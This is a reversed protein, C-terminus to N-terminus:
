DGLHSNMEPRRLWRAIDRGLAEVCRGLVACSSKYGAFAGGMSQRVGTFNGIEVGNELLRGRVTVHKHHGIFANGGSVATVIEVFLVRGKGAKVAEDDIVVRLVGDNAAAKEIFEILRAPLNCDTAVARPIVSGESFPAVRGVYIVNEDAAEAQASLAIVVGVVLSIWAIKM